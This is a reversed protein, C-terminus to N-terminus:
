VLLPGALPFRRKRVANTDARALHQGADRSTFVPLGVGQDATGHVQCRSYLLQGLCHAAVDQYALFCLCSESM